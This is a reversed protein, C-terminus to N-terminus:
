RAVRKQLYAEFRQRYAETVHIVERGVCICNNKDVTKIHELAVIYSRNVRLFRTPPLAEEVAGMTMHTILSVESQYQNRGRVQFVVYDKMGMVYLLDDLNVAQLVGDVKVFLSEQRERGTQEERDADAKNAKEQLEFWQRAKEAATLFHNYRIPKLLFDLANVGYSDFAYQKFATTFIVRTGPPVMQSLEMGNLDPMQIDLFVVNVPTHQLDAAAQVSDTYSSMLQLFPTRGVYNELLKIALPEDDIISCTIKDM